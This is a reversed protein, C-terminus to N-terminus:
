PTPAPGRGTAAPWTPVHTRSRRRAHRDDPTGPTDEAHAAPVDSSTSRGAAGPTTVAEVNAAYDCAACRVFSDEGVETPALFEESASGGMAGSM